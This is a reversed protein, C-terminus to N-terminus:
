LGFKKSTMFLNFDEIKYKKWNTDHWSEEDVDVWQSEWPLQDNTIKEKEGENLIFVYNETIDKDGSWYYVDFKLNKNTLINYIDTAIKNLFTKTRNSRIALIAARSGITLSKAEFTELYIM